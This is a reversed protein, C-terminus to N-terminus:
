GKKSKSDKKETKSKIEAYKYWRPKFNLKLNHEKKKKKIKVM